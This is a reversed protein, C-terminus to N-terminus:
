SSGQKFIKLQSLIEKSSLPGERLVKPEPGSLDIVTSPIVPALNGGDIICEVKGYFKKKIEEIKYITPEGLANAGTLALPRGSEQSLLRAAIHSSIRIAVCDNAGVISPLNKKKAVITVPGPMFSRAIFEAEPSLVAYEQAMRLDAVSIPVGWANVGSGKLELLRKVAEERTADAAICYSTETPMVVVGGRCLIEAAEEVVKVLKERDRRDLPLLLVKTTEQRAKRAM